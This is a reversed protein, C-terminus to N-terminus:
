RDWVDPPPTAQGSRSLSISAFMNPNASDAAVAVTADGVGRDDANGVVVPTLGDFRDHDGGGLDIGAVDDREAPPM